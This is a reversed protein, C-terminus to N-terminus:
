GWSYHLVIRGLMTASSSVINVSNAEKIYVHEGNFLINRVLWNGFSDSVLWSRTNIQETTYRAIVEKVPMLVGGVIDGVEFQPKMADDNVTISIPNAGYNRLECKFAKLLPLDVQIEDGTHGGNKEALYIPGNGEGYLIWDSTVQVGFSRIGSLFRQLGDQRLLVRGMEWGKITMHPIESKQSFEEQNLGTLSRASKIRWGIRRLDEISFRGREAM